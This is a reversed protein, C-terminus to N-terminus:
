NGGKLSLSNKLGFKFPKSGNKIHRRILVNQPLSFDPYIGIEQPPFSHNRGLGENSKQEPNDPV